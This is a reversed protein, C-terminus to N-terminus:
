AKDKVLRTPCSTCLSIYLVHISLCESLLFVFCHLVVCSRLCSKELSFAESLHFEFGHRMCELDVLQAM